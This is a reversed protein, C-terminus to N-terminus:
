LKADLGDGRGIPTVAARERDVRPAAPLRIAECSRLFLSAALNVDKM